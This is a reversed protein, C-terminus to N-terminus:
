RLAPFSWLSSMSCTLLEMSRAISNMVELFGSTLYFGSDLQEAKHSPNLIVASPPVSIGFESNFGPLNM